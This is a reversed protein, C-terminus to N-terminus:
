LLYFRELEGLVKQLDQRLWGRQERDQASLARDCNSAEIEVRVGLENCVKEFDM